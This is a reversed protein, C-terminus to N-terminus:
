PCPASPSPRSTLRLARIRPEIARWQTRAYSRLFWARRKGFRHRRLVLASLEDIEFGAWEGAIHVLNWRLAPFVEAFFIEEIAELAYSSDACERAVYAHSLSVDTDMFLM